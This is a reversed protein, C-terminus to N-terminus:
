TNGKSGIQELLALVRDMTEDDVSEIALRAREEKETREPSLEM